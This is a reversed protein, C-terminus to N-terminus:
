KKYRNIYLGPTDCRYKFVYGAKPQESLDTNLSATTIILDKMDDGGFCCSSVKEVPIDIKKIVKGTSSDINIVGWGGWLATWLNGNADITMGDGSGWELPIDTITRRGSLNHDETSFDFVEIKQERSDCYYMKKTDSTWDLGNSCGCNDFLETLAGGSLRYFAGKHNDDTTGVYYCGDPGVKGDNFRRGKIPMSEHALTLSGDPSRFYVGDQMSLILDGDECLAMCGIQQPLPTKDTKGSLYDMTYYCSGIIDVFYMTKTKEDWTPGEGVIWNESSLIELNKYM